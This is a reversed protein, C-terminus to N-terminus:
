RPVPRKPAPAETPKAVAMQREKVWVAIQTRSSFDRREHKSLKGFINQITTEVGREGIGMRAAIEKSPLGEAVLVAVESQRPSLPHYWAAPTMPAPAKPRWRHIAYESAVAVAFVSLGGVIALEPGEQFAFIAIGSALALAFAIPDLDFRRAAGRM